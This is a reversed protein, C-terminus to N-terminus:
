RACYVFLHFCRCPVATQGGSAKIKGPVPQGQTCGQAGHRAGDGAGAGRLAPPEPCGLRAPGPRPPCSGARMVVESVKRGRGTGYETEGVMGGSKVGPCGAPRNRHQHGLNGGGRMSGARGYVVRRSPHLYLSLPRPALGVDGLAEGPLRLTTGCRPRWEPQAPTAVTRATQSRRGPAPRASATAPCGKGEDRKWNTPVARRDRDPALARSARRCGTSPSRRRSRPARSPGAAGQGGGRGRRCLPCLTPRARPPRGGGRPPPGGAAAPLPPLRTGGCLASTPPLPPRPLCEDTRGARSRARGAGTWEAPEPPPWPQSSVKLEERVPFLVKGKAGRCREGLVCRKEPGGGGIGKVVRGRTRPLGSEEQPFGLYRGDGPVAGLQM